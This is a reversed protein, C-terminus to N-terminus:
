VRPAPPAQAARQGPGSGPNQPPPAPTGTAAAPPPSGAGGAGAEGEVVGGLSVAAGVVVGGGSPPELPLGARSAATACILAASVASASAWRLPSKSPMPRAWAWSCSATFAYWAAAPCDAGALGVPHAAPATALM